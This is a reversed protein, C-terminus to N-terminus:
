ESGNPILRLTVFNRGRPNNAYTRFYYTSPEYGPPVYQMEQSYVGHEITLPTSVHDYTENTPIDNRRSYFVPAQNNDCSREMAHVTILSEPAPSQFMRNGAVHYLMPTGSSMHVVNLYNGHVIYESTAGHSSIIGVYLIHHGAPLLYRAAVSVYRDGSGSSFGLTDVSHIPVMRSNSVVVDVQGKLVAVSFDATQTSGEVSDLDFRYIDEAPPKPWV